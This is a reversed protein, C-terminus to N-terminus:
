IIYIIIRYQIAYRKIFEQRLFRHLPLLYIIYLVNLCLLFWVMVSSKGPQDPKNVAAKNQEPAFSKAIVVGGHTGAVM